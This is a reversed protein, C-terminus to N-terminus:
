FIALIARLSLKDSLLEWRTKLPSFSESLLEWQCFFHKFQVGGIEQTESLLDWQFIANWHYWSCHFHNLLATKWHSINLNIVFRTLVERHSSLSTPTHKYQHFSTLSLIRYFKHNYEILRDSVIWRSTSYQSFIIDALLIMYITCLGSHQCHNLSDKIIISPFKSTQICCKSYFNM